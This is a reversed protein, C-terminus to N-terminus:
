STITRQGLHSCLVKEVGKLKQYRKQLEQIEADDNNESAKRIGLETQTILWSIYRLKCEQVAKPVLQHLIEHEEEIFSGRKTWFKSLKNKESLIDSVL